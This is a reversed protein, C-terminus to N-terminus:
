DMPKKAGAALLAAIVGPYDGTDRHWGHLSGYAAWGMPTGHHVFDEAELPPKFRLIELAMSLNGHFAAWHLATVGDPTHTEVPWGAELMLRVANINNNQAVSVLRRRDADSLSVVLAPQKALIERLLSEDGSECAVVLKLEEPSREMLLQFVDNHGFERAVEHATRNSGLVWIYIVGGSHPNRKPFWEHSVSTRIAAPNADLHRRVLDLDGLAAALLIDTECGRSVLFSAVAQRERAMYQAPTSEHDIDRADIEAGHSLLYEAIEVSSAFHLPTQGDGGRAHVLDPNASVFEKLKDFMGLRAAAHVDVRAGRHILFEELGTPSDLVGFSGAWWHSRANIDAGARLLADIMERNRAHVAALLATGGFSGGPLPEDLKGKWEPHQQLQTAVNAADNSQIAILLEKM